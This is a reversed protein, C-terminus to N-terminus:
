AYSKCFAWILWSSIVIVAVMVVPVACSTWKPREPVKDALKSIPKFYVWWAMFNIVIVLATSVGVLVFVYPVLHILSRRTADDIKQIIIWVLGGVIGSALKIFLSFAEIIKENHYRSQAALWDFQKNDDIM